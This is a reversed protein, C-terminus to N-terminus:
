ESYDFGAKAFLNTAGSLTMWGQVALKKDRSEQLDFTERAYNGAVVM